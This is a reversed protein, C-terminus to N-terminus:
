EVGEERAYLVLPEPLYKADLKKITYLSGDWTIEPTDSTLSSLGRVFFSDTMGFYVGKQMVIGDFTPINDELALVVITGYHVLKEANEANEAIPVLTYEMGPSGDNMYIKADTGLVAWSPIEDSVKVFRVDQGLSVVTRENVYALRDEWKVNGEGDTVLSKYPEGNTSPVTSNPKLMGRSDVNIKGSAVDNTDYCLFKKM